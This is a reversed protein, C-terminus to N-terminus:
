VPRRAAGRDVAGHRRGGRLHRDQRHVETAMNTLRRGARGHRPTALGPGGFEMIRDLPIRPWRRPDAPHAADRGQRDRRPRLEGVLEFRISEPVRVLTFGSHILGAYETAGVGYASRTAQRGGMCTHSDTAQIFDGPDIFQERAVQHCIGPSVNDRVSYDRVAPTRRSSERQLDSCRRSRTRSRRWRACLRRRLLPSGRLGRVQRPDSSRITTASSRPWSTISRRPPSSTATAATSASWCTTGRSSARTETM